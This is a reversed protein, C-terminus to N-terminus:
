PQYRWQRYSVNLIWRIPAAISLKLMLGLTRMAHSLAPSWAAHTLLTSHYLPVALNRSWCRNATIDWSSSGSTRPGIASQPYVNGYCRMRWLASADTQRWWLGM